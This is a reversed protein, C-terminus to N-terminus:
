FHARLGVAFLDYGSQKYNGDGVIVPESPTPSNTVVANLGSNRVDNEPMFVHSYALDLDFWSIGITAGSPGYMQSFNAFNVTVYQPRPSQDYAANSEYGGGARM